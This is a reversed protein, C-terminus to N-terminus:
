IKATEKRQDGMKSLNSSAVDLFERPFNESLYELVIKRTSKDSQMSNAMNVLQVAVDENGETDEM